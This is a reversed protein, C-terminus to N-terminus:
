GGLDRIDLRSDYDGESRGWWTVTGDEGDTHTGFNM